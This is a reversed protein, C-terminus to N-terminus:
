DRCESRNRLGLGVQDVYNLYSCSLWAIYLRGTLFVACSLKQTTSVPAEQLPLEQTPWALGAGERM